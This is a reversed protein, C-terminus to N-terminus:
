EPLMVVEIRNKQALIKKALNQVAKADIANFARNWHTHTDIGNYYFNYLVASWYGNERLGQEFQSRMNSHSNQFDETLVGNDAIKQIEDYVVAILEEAL